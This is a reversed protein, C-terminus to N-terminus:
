APVANGSAKSRRVARSAAPALGLDRDDFQSVVRSIDGRFIGIDRLERDSLACLDSVAKSRKWKRRASRVLRALIGVTNDRRWEHAERRVMEPTIYVSM